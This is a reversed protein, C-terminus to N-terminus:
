WGQCESACVTAGFGSGEEASSRSKYRVWAILDEEIEFPNDEGPSAGFCNTDLVKRKWNGEESMKAMGVQYAGDGCGSNNGEDSGQGEVEDFDVTITGSCGEGIQFRWMGYGDVDAEPAEIRICPGTEETFEYIPGGSPVTPLSTTTPQPTTTTTNTGHVGLILATTLFPM